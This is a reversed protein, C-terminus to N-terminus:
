SADVRTCNNSDDKGHYPSSDKEANHDACANGVTIPPPLLLHLRGPHVTLMIGLTLIPIGSEGKQSCGYNRCTRSCLQCKDQATCCCLMIMLHKLMITLAARGDSSSITCVVVPWWGGGM